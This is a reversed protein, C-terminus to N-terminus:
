EGDKETTEASSNEAPAAESTDDKTKAEKKADAKKGGAEPKAASSKAEPKAESEPPAEAKAEAKAGDGTAQAEAPGAIMDVTGGAATIKAAASRSVLVGKFTLKKKIEGDALVKVLFDRKGILRHERLSELSVTQGSKYRSNISELSVTVYVKKFRYNSFGRRAVRRYLPM